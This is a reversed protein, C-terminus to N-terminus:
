GTGPGTAPVVPVEEMLGINNGDPDHLFAMWLTYRPDRFVVDPRSFFIAGREELTAVADDLGTVRFYITAIGSFGPEEPQALYLRIGAADFFANGPFAFLFPLRLVDRYFATAREVDTVPILIQGIRGLALDSSATMAALEKSTAPPLLTRM